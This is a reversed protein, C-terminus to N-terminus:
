GKDQDVADFRRAGFQCVDLGVVDFSEGYQFVGGGGRHVTAATRVAHDEHRGLRSVLAFGLEVDAILRRERAVGPVVVESVVHREHLQGVFGRQGAIRGAHAGVGDLLDLFGAHSGIRQDVGVVVPLLDHKAIEGGVM